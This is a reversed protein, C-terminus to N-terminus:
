VYKQKSKEIWQDLDRVDLFMKRGSHGARVYPIEGNWILDRVGWITRGLYIGAEKLTYLRKPLPNTIGQARMVEQSKFTNKEPTGTVTGM